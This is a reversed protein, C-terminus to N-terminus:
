TLALITGEIGRIGREDAIYYAILIRGDTLLIASPYGTDKSPSDDRIIIEQADELSQGHEVLRARIGMPDHRYGYALLLRGDPLLLPCYPHGKVGRSEPQQFERGAGSAESTVLHDDNNGTRCFMTIRGEPWRVLAPEVLDIGELSIVQDDIAWSAGNDNSRYLRVANGKLGKLGWGYAAFLLVGNELQVMNGRIAPVGPLGEFSPKSFKDDVPLITHDTWTIGGDDSYRTYGGWFQFGAGIHKNGRLAIGREALKGTIEATVPYWLFGYQILRGGATVFLNADQDAAEAHAPLLKPPALADGNADLPMFAIHSRFHLHDVSNFDEEMPEGLMWRHDPARRFTLLSTGDSLAAVAPFASFFRDHRYLTIHGIIELPM